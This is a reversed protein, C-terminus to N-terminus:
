SCARRRSFLTLLETALHTPQGHRIARQLHHLEQICLHWCVIVDVDNIGDNGDCQDASGAARWITLYGFEDTTIWCKEYYDFNLCYDNMICQALHEHKSYEQRFFPPTVFCLLM